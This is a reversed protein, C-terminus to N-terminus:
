GPTQDRTVDGGPDCADVGFRAVLRRRLAEVAHARTDATIRYLAGCEDYLPDLIGDSRVRLAWAIFTSGPGSAREAAIECNESGFTARILTVM